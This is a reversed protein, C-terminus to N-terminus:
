VIQAENAMAIHTTTTKIHRYTERADMEAEIAKGRTKIKDIIRFASQSKPVSHGSSVAATAIGTITM